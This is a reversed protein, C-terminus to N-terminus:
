PVAPVTTFQRERGSCLAIDPDGGALVADVSGLAPLEDVSWFYTAGPRVFGQLAPIEALVVTSRTTYLYVRRSWTISAGWIRLRYVGQNGQTIWRLTVGMGVNGSGNEPSVLQPGPRLTTRVPSGPRVDRLLQVTSYGGPWSAHAEVEYVAGPLDPADISFADPFRPNMEISGIEVRDHGFNAFVTARRDATYPETRFSGNLFVTSAPTFTVHELDIVRREDDKLSFSRAYRDRLVRDRDYRLAYLTMRHTEGHGWPVELRYASSVEDAWTYDAHGDSAVVLIRTSWRPVYPVRGTVWASGGSYDFYSSLTRAVPQSCTAGEYVITEYRDTPQLNPYGVVLDYPPQVGQFRFNGDAAVTTIQGGIQVPPANPLPTGNAALLRGWVEGAAPQAGPDVQVLDNCGLGSVACVVAAALAARRVDFHM